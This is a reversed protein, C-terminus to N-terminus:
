QSVVDFPPLQLFAFLSCDYSGHGLPTANCLLNFKITSSNLLGTFNECDRFDQCVFLNWFCLGFCLSHCDWSWNEVMVWDQTVSVDIVWMEHFLMWAWYFNYATYNEKSETTKTIWCFFFRAEDSFGSINRTRSHHLERHLAVLM